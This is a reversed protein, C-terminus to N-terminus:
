DERASRNAAIRHAAAVVVHAWAVFEDPEDFLREPMRWFSLDIISGKKEDRSYTACLGCSGVPRAFARGVVLAIASACHHCAGRYAPDHSLYGSKAPSM